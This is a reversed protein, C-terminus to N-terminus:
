FELKLKLFYIQCHRRCFTPYKKPRLTNIFTVTGASPWGHDVALGDVPVTNVFDLGHIILPYFVTPGYAWFQYFNGPSTMKGNISYKLPQAAQENGQTLLKGLCIKFESTHVPGTSSPHVEPALVTIPQNDKCPYSRLSTGMSCCEGLRPIGHKVWLLWVLIISILQWCMLLCQNHINKNPSLKIKKIFTLEFQWWIELILVCWIGFKFIERRKKCNDNGLGNFCTSFSSTTPAAGVPSAGVVDSHDVIKNGVLTCWINFTQCCNQFTFIDFNHLGTFWKMLWKVIAILHSPLLTKRYIVTADFLIM